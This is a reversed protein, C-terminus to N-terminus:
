ARELSVNATTVSGSVVYDEIIKLVHFPILQKSDGKAFEVSIEGATLSSIGKDDTEAQRDASYLVWAMELCATKMEPEPDSLDPVYAEDTEDWVYLDVSWDVYNLLMSTAQILLQMKQTDTLAAWLSARHYMAEFYANPETLAQFFCNETSLAVTM